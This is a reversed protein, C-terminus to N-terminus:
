QAAGKVAGAIEILADVIPLGAIPTLGDIPLKARIADSVAQRLAPHFGAPIAAKAQIEKVLAQQVEGVKKYAGAGTSSAVSLFAAELGPPYQPGAKGAALDARYAQKFKQALPTLPPTPPPQPGLGVDVLRRAVDDVSKAGAKVVILEVRGASKAELTFVTPGAFTRTETKGSGGVFKARIRIPGAEQTVSVLGAPSTLLFCPEKADIVLIQDAGLQPVGAPVPPPAPPPEPTPAPAAEPFVIWPAPAPQAPPEAPAAATCLLLLLTAFRKV